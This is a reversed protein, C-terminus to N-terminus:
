KMKLANTNFGYLYTTVDLQILLTIYLCTTGSQSEEISQAIRLVSILLM